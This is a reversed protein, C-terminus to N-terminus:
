GRRSFAVAEIEVLLESRCIDGIVFVTPLDGLRERCIARAAPYDCERKVYVRALALDDLTAGLDARGHSRFNDAAILAEINDLTQRTQREIDDDFRSESATISATGSIFTAVTDGTIVAMARVFKPREPGYQHAYDYAAVQLPNELPLLAVDGGDPRVALCSIALDDGKAGIGTSAPFVPKTWGQPTLGGGFAVNRYFEARARNMECYRLTKGELGTINGLYFWARVVDDFKWGHRRLREDALQFASAARDHLPGSPLTPRVDGLYAWAAGSHRAVTLGDGTSEIGLMDPGGLGWAEVAFSSGDCPPQAVYTTSPQKDGYFADALARCEDIDDCDRVFVSQMVVQAAEREFLGKIDQLASALQEGLGNGASPAVVAFVRRVGDCDVISHQVNGHTFRQTMPPPRRDLCAVFSTDTSM